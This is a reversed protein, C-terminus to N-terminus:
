VWKQGACRSDTYGSDCVIETLKLVNEHASFFSESGRSDEAEGVLSYRRRGAEKLM